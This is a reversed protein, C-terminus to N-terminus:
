QPPQFPWPAPAPPQDMMPPNMVPSGMMQPTMLSPDFGQAYSHAPARDLFVATLLTVYGALGILSLAANFLSFAWRSNYNGDRIFGEWAGWSLLSVVLEVVGTIVVRQAVRPYLKKKATGFVIMVVAFGLYPLRWLNDNISDLV